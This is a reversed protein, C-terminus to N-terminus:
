CKLSIMHFNAFIFKNWKWWAAQGSLSSPNRWFIFPLTCAIYWLMVRILPWRLEANVANLKNQLHSEMQWLTFRSCIYFKASNLNFKFTQDGNESALKWFTCLVPHRFVWTVAKRDVEARCESRCNAGIWSACIACCLSLQDSLQLLEVALNTVSYYVDPSVDPSTIMQRLLRCFCMGVLPWIATVAM